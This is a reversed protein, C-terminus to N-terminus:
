LKDTRRDGQGIGVGSYRASAGGGGYGDRGTAFVSRGERWGGLKLRRGGGRWEWYWVHRGEHREVYGLQARECCGTALFSPRCFFFYM